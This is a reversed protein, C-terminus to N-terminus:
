RSRRLHGRRLGPGPGVDQEDHEVLERRLRKGVVPVLQDLRRVDGAEGVRADDEVIEVAIRRQAPGRAEGEHRALSIGADSGVVVGGFKRGGDRRERVVQPKRAVSGTKGPLHMKDAGVLQVAELVADRGVNIGAVEAPRRGPLLGVPDMPPEVVHQRDRLGAGVVARELDIVVLFNGKLGLAPDPVVRARGVLPREQEAGGEDMRVVGVHRGAPQPVEIAVVVDVHRRHGVDVRVAAIRRAPAQPLEVIAVLVLHRGAVNARCPVRVVRHHAVGILEKAAQEGWEFPKPEGIVGDDDDGGVM